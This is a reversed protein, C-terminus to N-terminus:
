GSPFHRAPSAKRSSRRANHGSCGPWPPIAWLRWGAVWGTGGCSVWAWVVGLDWMVQWAVAGSLVQGHLDLSAMRKEQSFEQGQQNIDGQRRQCKPQRKLYAKAEIHRCGAVLHKGGGPGEQDDGSEQNEGTHTEVALEPAIGPDALVTDNDRARQDLGRHQNEELTEDLDRDRARGVQDVEKQDRREQDTEAQREIGGAVAHRQFVGQAAMQRAQHGTHGFVTESGGRGFSGLGLGGLAEQDDARTLRAALDDALQLAVALGTDRNDGEVLVGVLAAVLDEAHRDMAVEAAQRLRHGFVADILDHEGQAVSRRHLDARDDVQDIAGTQRQFRDGVQGVQDAAAELDALQLGELDLVKEAAVLDREIELLDGMVQFILDDEDGPGPARDARLEAALDSLELRALQQQKIVIFDRRAVRQLHQLVPQRGCGLGPDHDARHAVEGAELLHHRFELRRNDEVSGTVVVGRDEVSLGFFRHFRIDKAGVVQRVLCHPRPHALKDQDRRALRDLRGTHDARRPADGLQHDLVQAATERIRQEGRHAEARDQACRVTEVGPQLALDLLVLPNHEMIGLLLAVQHRQGLRDAQDDLGSGQRLAALHKHEIRATRRAKEVQHLVHDSELAQLGPAIHRDLRLRSGLGCRRGRDFPEMEIILDQARRRM